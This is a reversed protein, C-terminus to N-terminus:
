RLILAGCRRESARLNAEIEEIDRRAEDSLQWGFGPEHDRDQKLPEPGSAPLPTGLQVTPVDSDRGRQEGM